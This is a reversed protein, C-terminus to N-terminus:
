IFVISLKIPKTKTNHLFYGLLIGVIYPTFRNWPKIYGWTMYDTEKSEEPLHISPNPGWSYHYTLITPVLASVLTLMGTLIVKTINGSGPM